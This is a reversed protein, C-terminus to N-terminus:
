IIEEKIIKMESWRKTIGQYLKGKRKVFPKIGISFILDHYLIHLLNKKRSAVRKAAKRIMLLYREPLSEKSNFPAKLAMHGCLNGGSYIVLEDLIKRTKRCGYNEGTAVTICCKDKLLQEIVFHGRDIFDKMLGSVNSAYTPSGLVLGDSNRIIESLQEADDKVFCHGTMYCSCCGRCHSIDLDVLDCYEVDIGQSILENEVSHLISATMGNTRPSGNIVIIKM